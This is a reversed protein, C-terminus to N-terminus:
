EHLLNCKILIQKHQKKSICKYELLEDVIAVIEDNKRDSNSGAHKEQLSIKLRNCLKDPDSLLFITKSVGSASVTLSPSILLKKLTKDRTSENGQAKLDFIMEKAIDYMKNKDSLNALDVKYIKNTIMKSLEGKLEFQKKTDRFTLFNDHLTVTKTKNIKLDKVSNSTSNKGPKFQSTNEPNTIKSLPSLVYYSIIGRDNLIEFFKTNLNEKAQNNTISTETITKTIDQSISGLSKSVPKITKKMDEHFNQKGLKDQLRVAKEQDQLSVLEELKEM